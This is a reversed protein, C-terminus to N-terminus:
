ERRYCLYGIVGVVLTALGYAVALRTSHPAGQSADLSRVVSPYAANLALAPLLCIARIVEKM